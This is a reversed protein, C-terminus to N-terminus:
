TRRRRTRASTGRRQGPVVPQDLAAGLAAAAVVRHVRRRRREARLRLEAYPAIREM